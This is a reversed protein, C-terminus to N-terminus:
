TTFDHANLFLSQHQPPAPATRARVRPLACALQASAAPSQGLSHGASGREPARGGHGPPSNRSTPAVPESQAPILAVTVGVTACPRRPPSVSSFGPHSEPLRSLAASSFSFPRTALLTSDGLGRRASGRAGPRTQAKTRLPWAPAAADCRAAQSGLQQAVTTAERLRRRKPPRRSFIGRPTSVKCPRPVPPPYFISNQNNVDQSTAQNMQPHGM